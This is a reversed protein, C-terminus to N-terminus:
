TPHTHGGGLWVGNGEAIYTGLLDRTITRTIHCRVSNGTTSAKSRTACDGCCHWYCYCGRCTARRQQQTAVFRALADFDMAVGEPRIRGITFDCAYPLRSSYVEFCAVLDGGPVVILAEAPAMCFMSSIVWPRAASYYVFRNAAKGIEYAELFRATFANGFADTVDAYVGRSSTFTPEVQIARAKTNRCIFEVGKPLEAITDSTVTMRIGYDAGAEDLARLSAMVTGFSEGGKALPRQHNQVSEIGDMSLSINDVNECIYSRQSASWVGNSSLSIHCPTDRSRAYSVAAELTSWCTTPEGGGHLALSFHRKGSKRGNECVADIVTKAVPWTIAEPKHVGANAYCYTCRMSCQNTMLLVATTPLFKDLDPLQGGTPDAEGNWFQISDLFREIDDDRPPNAGAIRRRIYEALAHNGVFALQRLPRYVITAGEFPVYYVEM